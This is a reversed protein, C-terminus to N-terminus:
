TSTPADLVGRPHSALEGVDSVCDRPGSAPVDARQFSARLLDEVSFDLGRVGSWAAATAPGQDFRERAEEVWTPPPLVTTLEVPEIKGTRTWEGLRSELYAVHGQEEKALTEFVRKGQPDLIQEAGKLYHDRVEHEYKIAVDLAERVDM